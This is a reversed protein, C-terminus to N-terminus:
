GIPAQFYAQGAPQALLEVRVLPSRAVWEDVDLAPLARREKIQAFIRRRYERDLIPVALAAVDRQLSQKFHVTFHPNARLNAYWGRRGPRGTIFLLGDLYSFGVEIRRPLGSRRGRTTIDILTDRELAKRVAEDV